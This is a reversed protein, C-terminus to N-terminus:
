RCRGAARQRRRAVSALGLVAPAAVGSGRVPTATTDRIAIAPARAATAATTKAPAVSAQAPASGPGTASPISPPAGLPTYAWLGDPM